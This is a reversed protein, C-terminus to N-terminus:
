KQVHEYVPYIKAEAAEMPLIDVYTPFHVEGCNPVLVISENESEKLLLLIQGPQLEVISMDYYANGNSDPKYSTGLVHEIMKVLSGKESVKSNIM